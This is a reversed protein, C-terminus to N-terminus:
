TPLNKLTNAFISNGFYGQFVWIKVKTSKKIRSPNEQNEKTL